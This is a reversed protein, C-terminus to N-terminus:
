VIMPAATNDKEGPNPAPLKSFTEDLKKFKPMLDPLATFLEKAQDTSFLQTIETIQTKLDSVVQELQTIKETGGNIANFKQQLDVVAQAMGSLAEAFEKNDGQPAPVPVPVPAPEPQKAGFLSQWLPKKEESMKKDGPRTTVMDIVFPVPAGYIANNQEANFRMRDTGISAPTNTVGLGKLYTKGSGRFNEVPEISAFLLQNRRNSYILDDTPCLRAYLKTLGTDTVESKLELVEGSNGWYREHEPWILATYLELDYTEAMETLWSAPIVRGDVTEGETAICIWDTMLQSSTGGM